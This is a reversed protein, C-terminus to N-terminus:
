RGAALRAFVSSRIQSVRVRPKAAAVNHYAGKKEFELYRWADPDTAYFWLLLRGGDEAFYFYPSGNAPPPTLDLELAQHGINGLRWRCGTL